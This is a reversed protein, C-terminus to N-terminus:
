VVKLINRDTLTNFVLVSWLKEGHDKKGAEHEKYINWIAPINDRLILKRYKNHKMFKDIPSSFGTKRFDQKNNIKKLLYKRNICRIKYELPLQYCFKFVEEAMFPSVVKVGAMRAATNVKRTETGVLETKIDFDMMSEYNYGPECYLLAKERIFRKISEPEWQMLTGQYGYKYFRIIKQGRTSKYDFYKLPKFMWNYRTFLYRDYGCFLEDGGDGTLVVDSYRKAISYAKFTPILSSSYFWDLYTKETINSLCNNVDDETQETITITKINKENFCLRTMNLIFTSDVGGSYLVVVPPKIKGIEKCVKSILEEVFYRETGVLKGEPLDWFKDTNHFGYLFGNALQQKNVKIM